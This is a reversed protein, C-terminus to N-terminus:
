WGRPAGWFAAARSPRNRSRSTAEAAHHDPSSEPVQRYIDVALEYQQLNDMLEASLLLSDIHDPRLFSAVRAYVLVYEEAAENKLASGISYFVEAVGDRPSTIHTFSLTEGAALRDAVDTLGPDFAGSFADALVDLAVENRGLQSLIEARSIAARRSIRSLAGDNEGFIAEAAEFDGTFALALAKHYLAFGRFAQEEGLTDFAAMAAETENKGMQAWGAILGDALPGVGLTEPDRALIADYDGAAVLNAVVAMHAIQSSLGMTEIQQAVPLSQEIDGQSVQAIVLSEMLKANSTDRFLAQRFFTAAEAFDNDHLAQRAALYAGSASENALVPVPLLLGATLVAAQAIPRIGTM